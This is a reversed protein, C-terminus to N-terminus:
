KAVGGPPALIGWAEGREVLRYSDVKDGSFEIVLDKAQVKGYLIIYFGSHNKYVWIDKGEVHTSFDPAGLLNIVDTKTTMKPNIGSPIMIDSYTMQAKGYKGFACGGLIFLAIILISFDRWRFIKDM